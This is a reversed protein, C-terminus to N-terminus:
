LAARLTEKRRPSFARWPFCLPVLSKIRSSIGFRSNDNSVGAFFFVFIAFRSFHTGEPHGLCLTLRCQRSPPEFTFVVRSFMCSGCIRTAKDLGAIKSQPITSNYDTYMKPLAILCNRMNLREESRKGLPTNQCFDVQCPRPAIDNKGRPAHPSHTGPSLPSNGKRQTGHLNPASWHTHRDLPLKLAQNLSWMLQPTKVYVQLQARLQPCYGNLSKRQHHHRLLKRRFTLRMSIGWAPIVSATMTWVCIAKAHRGSPWTFAM